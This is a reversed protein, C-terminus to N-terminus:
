LSLKKHLKKKLVNWLKKQSQLVEIVSNVRREIQMIKNSLHYHFLIILCYTPKGRQTIKFTLLFKPLRKKPILTHNSNKM